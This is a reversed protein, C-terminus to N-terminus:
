IIKYSEKQAHYKEILLKKNQDPLMVINDGELDISITVSMYDPQPPKGVLKFYTCSNLFRNLDSSFQGLNIQVEAGGDQLTIVKCNTDNLVHSQKYSTTETSAGDSSRPIGYIIEHITIVTGPEIRNLHIVISNSVIDISVKFSNLIRLTKIYIKIIGDISISNLTNSPNTGWPTALIINELETNTLYQTMFSAGVAISTGIFALLLGPPIGVGTASAAASAAFFSAAITGYGLAAAGYGYASIKCITAADWDYVNALKKGKKFANYCDYGSTLASVIALPGSGVKYWKGEFPIKVLECKAFYAILKTTLVINEAANAKGSKNKEYIEEINYFLALGEFGLLMKKFAPSKLLAAVKTNPGSPPDINIRWFSLKDTTGFIQNFSRLPIDSNASFKSISFGFKLGTTKFTNSLMAALQEPKYVDIGGKAAEICIKAFGDSVKRINQYIKSGKMGKRHDSVDQSSEVDWLDNNLLLLNQLWTHKEKSTVYPLLSKLLNAGEEFRSINEIINGVRNEFHYFIEPQTEGPVIISNHDVCTEVFVSEAIYSCLLKVKLSIDETINEIEKDYAKILEYLDKYKGPALHKKYDPIADLILLLMAGYEHVLKKKKKAEDTILGSACRSEEWDAYLEDVSERLLEARLLPNVIFILERGDDLLEKIAEKKNDINSCRKLPNQLLGNKKDFIRKAPLRIESVCAVITIANGQEKEPLSAYDDFPLEQSRNAYNDETLEYTAFQKGSSDTKIEWVRTFTTGDTSGFAYVWKNKIWHGKCMVAPDINEATEVFCILRSSDTFEFVVGDRSSEIVQLKKDAM